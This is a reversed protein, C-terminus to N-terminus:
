GKCVPWFECWEPSCKWTGQGTPPYAGSQIAQWTDQILGYLWIMDAPTRKTEIVQVKPAKAKTFVYYRFTDSVLTGAQGLAALYITPQLETDAKDPAWSRNATKLDCPMGEATILDVYGTIPIPVGPVYLNVNTELALRGNLTWPKLTDLFAGLHPYTLPKGGTVEVKTTLMHEGQAVLEDNSTDGWNVDPDHERQANWTERWLETLPKTALEVARAGIYAQILGHFASGFILNPSTPTKRREQYRYRWARACTLYLSLSSYSLHRLELPSM